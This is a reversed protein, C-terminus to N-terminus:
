EVVEAVEAVVATDAAASDTAASDAVVAAVEEVVAVATDACCSDCANDAAKDAGGCSFMTASFAVALFLVLKKMEKQTLLLVINNHKM